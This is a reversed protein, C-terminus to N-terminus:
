SGRATSAKGCSSMCGSAATLTSKGFKRAVELYIFRFRRVTLDARLRWGFWHTLLFIQVPRLRMLANEGLALPLPECFTCIDIAHTDSWAFAYTPRGHGSWNGCIGSRWCGCSGAPWSGAPSWTGRM